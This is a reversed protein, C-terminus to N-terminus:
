YNKLILKTLTLLTNQYAELIKMWLYLPLNKFLIKVQETEADFTYSLRNNGLHDKYLYIYQYETFIVNYHSM